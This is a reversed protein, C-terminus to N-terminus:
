SGLSCCSDSEPSCGSLNDSCASILLVFRQRVHRQLPIGSPGCLYPKNAKDTGCPSHIPHMTVAVARQRDRIQQLLRRYRLM